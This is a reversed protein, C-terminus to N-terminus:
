TCRTRSRPCCTWSFGTRDPIAEPGTPVSVVVEISPMALEIHATLQGGPQRAHPLVLACSEDVAIQLDEVEDITLDSQAALATVFARLAAVYNRDAPLRVEVEHSEEPWPDGATM